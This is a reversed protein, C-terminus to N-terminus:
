PEKLPPPVPDYGGESWPHCRSIRKVTLWSGKLPGHDELATLGYQSCTPYFRCCPLFLPSIVVRYGRVLGILLFKLANSPNMSRNGRFIHIWTALILCRDTLLKSPAAPQEVM